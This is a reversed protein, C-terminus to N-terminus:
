YSCQRLLLMLVWDRAVGENGAVNSTAEVVM